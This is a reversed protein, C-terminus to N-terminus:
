VAEIKRKLRPTKNVQFESILSPQGPGLFGDTETEGAKPNCTHTVMCPAKVHLPPVQTALVKSVSKKSKRSKFFAPNEVSLPNVSSAGLPKEAM